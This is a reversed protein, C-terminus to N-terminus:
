KKLPKNNMLPRFPCFIMNDQFSIYPYPMNEHPIIGMSIPTREAFDEIKGAMELLTHAIHQNSEM